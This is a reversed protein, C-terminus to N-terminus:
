CLAEAGQLNELTDAERQFFALNQGDDAGRAAALGGKQAAEVEKLGGVASLDGYRVLRQEVATVLVLLDAFFAQVETQHELGEVQEWLVGYVLVDGESQLKQRLLALVVLLVFFGDEVLDVLSCGVQEGSHTQGVLRLIIGALQRATLLLTHGDGARQCERGLYEAKVLGGRSEVGVQRALHQTNDAAEFGGVTGHHDDGM